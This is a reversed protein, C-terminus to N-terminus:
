LILQEYELNLHRQKSAGQFLTRTTLVSCQLNVISACVYTCNTVNHQQHVPQVLHLRQLVSLAHALVQGEQAGHLSVGAEDEGM